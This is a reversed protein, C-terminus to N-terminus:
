TQQSLDACGTVTVEVVDHKKFDLTVTEQTERGARWLKLTQRGDNNVLLGAYRTTKKGRTATVFYYRGVVVEDPQPKNSKKPM